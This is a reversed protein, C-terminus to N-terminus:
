IPKHAAFRLRVYDATWRGESDQLVTALLEASETVVAARECDPVTQLIPFAFTDLWGTIGTPLPTPRGFVEIRDVQFGHKELSARFEGATPYYWPSEVQQGRRGLVARLAVMIAAVNGHAGFEGVFRGGPLLARWVGDLVPDIDRMWHLAANSFVADFDPQFTLAEGPMVVAEIGRARTAEVMRPSSDVGIVEAGSAKIKETLAGDGCGLDLILEGPQPALWELVGAGLDSVFRANQAYAGPDWNGDAAM